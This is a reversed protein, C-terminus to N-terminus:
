QAAKLAKRQAKEENRKLDQLQLWEQIESLELPCSAAFVFRAGSPTNYVRIANRQVLEDALESTTMGVKKAKVSYNSLIARFSLGGQWQEFHSELRSSVDRIIQSLIKEKADIDIVDRTLNTEEMTTEKKQTQKTM